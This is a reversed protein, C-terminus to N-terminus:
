FAPVCWLGGKWRSWLSIKYGWSDLQFTLLKHLWLSFRPSIAWQNCSMITSSPFIYAWLIPPSPMEARPLWTGWLYLMISLFHIWSVVVCTFGCFSLPPIFIAKYLHVLFGLTIKSGIKTINKEEYHSFQDSKRGLITSILIESKLVKLRQSTFM